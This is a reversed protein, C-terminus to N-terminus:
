VQDKGSYLVIVHTILGVAPLILVYVEVQGFLRFLHLDGGRAPEYFAKSASRDTLLMTIGGGVSAVFVVVAGDDGGGGM